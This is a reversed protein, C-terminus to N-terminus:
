NFVFLIPNSYVLFKGAKNKDLVLSDVTQATYAWSTVIVM